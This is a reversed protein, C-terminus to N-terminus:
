EYLEHCTCIICTYARSGHIRSYLPLTSSVDSDTGIGGKPSFYCTSHIIPRQTQCSCPSRLRIRPIYHMGKPLADTYPLILDLFIRTTRTRFGRSRSSVQRRASEICYVMKSTWASTASTAPPGRAPIVSTERSISTGVSVLASRLHPLDTGAVYCQCGQVSRYQLAKFCTVLEKEAPAIRL